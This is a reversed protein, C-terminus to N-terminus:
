GRALRADLNKQISKELKRYIRYCIGLPDVVQMPKHIMVTIDTQKGGDPKLTVSILTTGTFSWFSQKWELYHNEESINNAGWSVIEDGSKRVLDFSDDVPLPLQMTFKKLM